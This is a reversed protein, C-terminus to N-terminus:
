PQGLRFTGLVEAGGTSNRVVAVHDADPPAPVVVTVVSPAAAGIYPDEPFVEVSTGIGTSVPVCGLSRGDRTRVEVHDGPRRDRALEGAVHVPHQEVLRLGDAAFEFIM